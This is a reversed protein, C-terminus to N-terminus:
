RPEVTPRDLPKRPCDEAAPAASRNLTSSDTAPCNVPCRRFDDVLEVRAARPYGNFGVATGAFDVAISDGRITVSARVPVPDEGEGDDDLWAEGRAATWGPPAYVTASGDDVLLPVGDAVPGSTRAPSSVPM